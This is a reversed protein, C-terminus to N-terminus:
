AAEEADKEAKEGLYESIRAALESVTGDQTFMRALPLEERLIENIAVQAEMISLSDIGMTSFNSQANLYGEEVGLAQTFAGLLTMTLVETRDKHELSLLNELEDMGKGSVAETVIHRLVSSTINAPEARSNRAWDIEDAVFHPVNVAVALDLVAYLRRLSVTSLGITTFYRKVNEDDAMGSDEIPGLQIACANIGKGRLDEALGDLGANASAYTGQISLGVVSSVSSTFLFFELGEFSKTVALADALHYAGELKPGFSHEIREADIVDFPGDNTVGAAHIVGRISCSDGTLQRLLELVSNRDRVDSKVVSVDIGGAKLLDISAQAKENPKGSSGCLIIHRAGRCALWHACVLGVAGYGGTILYLGDPDMTPYLANAAVPQYDPTMEIALPGTTEGLSLDHVARPMESIPYLNVPIHNAPDAMIEVLADLRNRLWAPERLSIQDTDLARYTKNGDFLSVFLSEELSSPKGLDVYTGRSNLHTMLATRSTGNVTAIIWDYGGHDANYLADPIKDGRAVVVEVGPLKKEVESVKSATGVSTVVHAGHQRAYLCLVSGLAGAGSQIFMRDGPQPKARDFILLTTLYPVAHAIVTAGEVGEPVRRLLKVEDTDLTIRRRYPRRVAGFVREGVSFQAGPGAKVVVGSVGFGIHHGAFTYAAATGITGLVKGIDKWLLAIAEVEICVEGKEPKRLREWTPVLKRLKGREFSFAMTTEKLSQGIVENGPDPTRLVQSTVKELRRLLPENGQFVIEHERNLAVTAELMEVSTTKERLIVRVSLGYSNAASRRLGFLWDQGRDAILTLTLTRIGLQGVSKILKTAALVDDKLEQNPLVWLLNINSNEEITSLDITPRSFPLEASNIALMTDAIWYEALQGSIEEVVECPVTAIGGETEDFEQECGSYREAIEEPKLNRLTYTIRDLYNDREVDDSINRICIIEELAALLNGHAGYYRVSGILESDNRVSVVAHAQYEGDAVMSGYLSIRGIRFPLYMVEGWDKAAAILLQLGADLVWPSHCGATFTEKADITAWAEQREGITVTSLNCFHGNYDLGKIRFAGYLSETNIQMGKVPPKAEVDAKEEANIDSQTLSAISAMAHLTWAIPKGVPRSLCKVTGSEIRTSVIIPQETIPLSQVITLNALRVGMMEGESVALSILEAWLTAPVIAGLGRVSHGGLWPHDTTSLEVEFCSVASSIRRGLLSLGERALEGRRAVEADPDSEWLMRPESVPRLLPASNTRKPRGVGDIALECVRSIFVQYESDRRSLIPHVSVDSHVATLSDISQSLVPHPSIEIFCNGGQDLISAVAEAFLVPQRINCAWYDAVWESGNSYGGSVTSYLAHKALSPKLFSLQDTITQTIEEMVPSHYPVDVRLMKSFVQQKRLHEDIQKIQNTDGSITLGNDDNVAAISVGPYDAILKVAEKRSMGVALMSGRGELSAQLRGRIVAVRVAEELTYVGAAYAAAVEGASHGVIADPFIGEDLLLNYLAAQILFNGTQALATPLQAADKQAGLEDWVSKGYHKVFLEDIDVIHKSFRPLNNALERGMGSWQPGMGSFVFVVSRPKVHRIGAAACSGNFVFDEVATQMEKINNAALIWRTPGRAARWAAEIIASYEADSINEKLAKHIKRAAVIAREKTPAGIPLRDISRYSKSRVLDKSIEQSLQQVNRM